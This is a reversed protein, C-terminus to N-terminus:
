PLRVLRLRHGAGLAFGRHPGMLAVPDRDLLARFAVADEEVAALELLQEAGLAGEEALVAGLALEESWDPVNWTM